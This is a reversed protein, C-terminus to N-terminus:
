GFHDEAFRALIDLRPPHLIMRTAPAHETVIPHLYLNIVKLDPFDVPISTALQKCQHPLYGSANTQLETRLLERWSDLFIIAKAKSQGSIGSILQCSLGARALGV